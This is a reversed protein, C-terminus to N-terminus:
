RKPMRITRPARTSTRSGAWCPRRPIRHMLVPWPRTSCRLRLRAMAPKGTTIIAQKTLQKNKRLGLVARRLTAMERMLQAMTKGADAAAQKTKAMRVRIAQTRFETEYTRLQFKYKGTLPALLRGAGAEGMAVISRGAEIRGAPPTSRKAFTSLLTDVTEARVSATATAVCVAIGALRRLM